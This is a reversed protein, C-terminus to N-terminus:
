INSTNVNALLETWAQKINPYRLINLKQDLLNAAEILRLYKLDQPTVEMINKTKWNVLIGSEIGKPRNSTSFLYALHEINEGFTTKIEQRDTVTQQQFANTGYISHLAGAICVYEPVGADHLMEYTNLLHDGLTRNSHKVSFANKSHLYNILITLNM